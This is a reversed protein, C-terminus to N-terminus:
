LNELAKEMSNLGKELTARPCAFNMRMFGKGVKGFAIGNNLALEGKEQLIENINEINYAAFDIWLLYTAEPSIVKLKPLRENIYKVAYDRNAELYVLLEDLWKESNIYAEETAVHAFYSMNDLHYLAIENKLKNKEEKRPISVFSTQLGALNFTKTPSFCTICIDEVEKSISSMSIFNSESFVLDRWAEDNIIRVDNKLCIDSIKMLEEKTWVRGTPNHPSSIVFWKTEKDKALQEFSEFDFVYKGDEIKLENTVLVRGAKEILELFPPYSPINVIVKDGENSFLKLAMVVSLLMGHASVLTDAGIDYGFRKKTWNAPLDYYDNEICTYGYIGHAAKDQIAKVINPPSSFDMDAIWMPLLDNSKFGRKGMGKWKTSNFEKRSIVKDFDYM